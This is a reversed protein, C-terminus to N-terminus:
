VYLLFIKSIYLTFQSLVRLHSFSFFIQMFKYDFLFYYKPSMLCEVLKPLLGAKILDDIPPNRDNSLLKRASQVVLLKIDPDENSANAVIAELNLLGSKDSVTIDADASENVSLGNSPINRRKQLTEERKNKRLTIQGEQRRRRM